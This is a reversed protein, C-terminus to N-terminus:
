GSCGGFPPFIRGAILEDAFRASPRVLPPDLEPASRLINLHLRRLPPTPLLGLEDSLRRRLREYVQLAHPQRGSRYLALMLYGNLNEALPSRQVIGSLEAILERHRGLRLDVEVRQELVALRAERLSAAWM